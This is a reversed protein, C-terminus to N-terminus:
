PCGIQGGCELGYCPSTKPMLNGAVITNFEENHTRVGSTNYFEFKVYGWPKAYYYFESGNGVVHEVALAQVTGVNGGLSLTVPGLLRVTMPCSHVLPPVACSTHLRWSCDTQFSEGSFM